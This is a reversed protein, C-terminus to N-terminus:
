AWVQIATKKFASCAVMGVSRALERLVWKNGENEPLELKVLLDEPINRIVRIVDGDLFPCKCVGHCFNLVRDDRSINRSWLRCFDLELEETLRGFKKANRHRGYGGLQEDAGQGCIVNTVVRKLKVGDCVGEQTLALATATAISLDMVTDNPYIYPVLEKSLKEGVDKEIDIEVFKICKSPFLRKLDKMVARACLRDPSDFSGEYRCAMNFLQVEREGSHQIAYYALMSSDIGGSFLLAIPDNTTKDISRDVAESLANGLVEVADSIGAIPSAMRKGFLHSYYDEITTGYKTHKELVHTSCDYSYWENPAATTSCSFNSFTVTLDNTEFLLSNYGFRDTAARIIPGVEILVYSVNKEDFDRLEEFTTSVDLTSLYRGDFRYKDTYGIRVTGDCASVESLPDTLLQKVQKYKAFEGSADFEVVFGNMLM